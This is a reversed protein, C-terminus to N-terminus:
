FITEGGKGPKLDTSVRDCATETKVQEHGFRNYKM